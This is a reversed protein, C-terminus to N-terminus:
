RVTGRCPRTGRVSRRAGNPISDIGHAGGRAQCCGPAYGRVGAPGNRDRDPGARRPAVRGGSGAASGDLADTALALAEPWEGLDFLASAANAKLVAGYTRELGVRRAIELGRRAEAVAERPRDADDLLATLNVYGLAVGEVSNVLTAIELAERMRGIGSEPEGLFALDWALVGEAMAVEALAGIERAIELSQLALQRSEAYDGTFMRIGALNSLVRARAVTRADVPVLRAAEELAAIAGASDGSEWLYWRLREHLFAARAPDRSADFRILSARGLEVARGYHGALAAFEAADHLLDAVDVGLDTGAAGLDDLLQLAREFHRLADAFAYAGAASQGAVISAPIARRPMGAADWHRALESAASAPDGALSPEAEIAAAFAAHFAAREGPLLDAYM